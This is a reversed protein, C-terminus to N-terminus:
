PLYTHLALRVLILFLFLSLWAFSDFLVHLLLIFSFFEGIREEAERGVRSVGGGKEEKEKGGRTAVV